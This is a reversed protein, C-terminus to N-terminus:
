AVGAVALLPHRHHASVRIRRRCRRCLGPTDGSQAQGVALGELSETLVHARRRRAREEVRPGGSCYPAMEIRHLFDGAAQPTM